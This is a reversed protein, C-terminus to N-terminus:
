TLLLIALSAGTSILFYPISVRHFDKLSIRAIRISILNAISGVMLGTGGLNVGIALPLWEPHSSSTVLVTAPVNSIAQSLGASALVLSVGNDPFRIAASSLMAALENFDAFILTFILVLAWDFGLIAERGFISLVALTIPFSLYHHGTEALLVNAILLFVSVFLLRYNVAVPPVSRVKIRKNGISLGFIALILLWVSVFPLMGITFSLLSLNYARWIIINQPNGIPTLASGVNAAIASLTVARAVDIKAVRSTTVVLPIFVLMTTDNMIVASSVAIFLILYLILKRESGKSLEVIRPAIRGFIGSLEIGKSTLILATILSLSAWNILKPTRPVFAPNVAAM